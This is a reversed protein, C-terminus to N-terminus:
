KELELDLNKRSPGRFEGFAGEIPNRNVWALCNKEISGHFKQLNKPRNPPINTNKDRSIPRFRLWRPVLPRSGLHAQHQM